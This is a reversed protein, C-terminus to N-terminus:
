LSIQCTINTSHPWKACFMAIVFSIIIIFKSFAFYANCLGGTNRKSDIGQTKQGFMEVGHTRNTYM